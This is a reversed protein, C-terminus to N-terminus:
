IAFPNFSISPRDYLMSIGTKTLHTCTNVQNIPVLSKAIGIGRWSRKCFVWHLIRYDPATFGFVAYGLVTTPSSKLCAVKVITGSKALIGEIVKHYNAMFVDKPRILNFWTDGYYLGRLWTAFIFPLDDKTGDRILVAETSPAAEQQM